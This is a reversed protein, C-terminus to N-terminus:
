QPPVTVTAPPVTRRRESIPHGDQDIETVAIINPFLMPLYYWRIGVVWLRYFRGNQLQAKVGQPNIKLLWPAVENEFERTKAPNDLDVAHILYRTEGGEHFLANDDTIQVEHPRPIIYLAPIGIFVAVMLVAFAKRGLPWHWFTRVGGRALVIHLAVPAAVERYFVIRNAWFRRLDQRVAAEFTAARGGPPPPVGGALWLFTQGLLRFAFALLSFAAALFWLWFGLVSVLAYVVFLLFRFFHWSERAVKGVTGLVGRAAEEAQHERDRLPSPAAAAAEATMEAM